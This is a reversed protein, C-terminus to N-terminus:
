TYESNYVLGCCDKHRLAVVTAMLSAQVGGILDVGVGQVVAQAEKTVLM